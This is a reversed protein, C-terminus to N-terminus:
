IVTFGFAKMESMSHGLIGAKIGLTTGSVAEKVKTCNNREYIGDAFSLGTFCSWLYRFQWSFHYKQMIISQKSEFWCM